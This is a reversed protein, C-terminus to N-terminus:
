TIWFIHLKQYINLVLCFIEIGLYVWLFITNVRFLCPWFFLGLVRIPYSFISGVGARGHFSLKKKLKKRFQGKSKIRLFTNTGVEDQCRGRVLVRHNHLVIM